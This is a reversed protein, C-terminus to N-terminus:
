ATNNKLVFVPNERHQKQFDHELVHETKNESKNYIIYHLITLIKIFQHLVDTM